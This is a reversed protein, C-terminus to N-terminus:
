QGAKRQNLREFKVVLSALADLSIPQNAALMERESRALGASRMNTEPLEYDLNSNGVGNVVMLGDQTPRVDFVGQQLGVPSTLGLRSDGLLFVLSDQGKKFRPLGPISVAQRNNSHLQRFTVTDGADVGKLGRRVRFTYQTAKMGSPLTVEEVKVCAGMFIREAQEVMKQLNVPKVQTAWASSAAFILLVAAAITKKLM